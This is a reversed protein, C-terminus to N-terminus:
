SSYVESRYFLYTGALSIGTLVHWVAHGQLWADPDSFKGAVDLQWCIRAAILAVVSVVLWRHRLRCHPRFRDFLAFVGVSLILTPLVVGSSMSWKYHYLLFSAVLVLCALVPWTSFGGQGDLANVRPIWRGLNIAIFVVLPSYMAAVDLQQGWRTLSAHFLGSGFGLYCCMVGFLISMAPTNVLYGGQVAVGRRMDHCGLGIAYLGVLVYALNSWTNAQTRFVEEPYIREAYGPKRLERSETWDSWVNQGAYHNSIGILALVIVLIGGWALAHIWKPVFSQEPPSVRAAHNFSGDPKLSPSPLVAPRNVKKM